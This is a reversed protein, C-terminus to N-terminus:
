NQIDTGLEDNQTFMMPKIFYKMLNRDQSYFKDVHGERGGRKYNFPNINKILYDFIISNYAIATTLRIGRHKKSLIRSLNDTLNIELNWSDHLHYGLYFTHWQCSKIDRISNELNENWNEDTVLFDDEFVMVNKLNQQKALSIIAKHSEACGVAGKRPYSYKGRGWPTPREWREDHEPKIASFRKVKDYIGLIKFQDCSHEWRDTREDLNICYIADFFDFSNNM